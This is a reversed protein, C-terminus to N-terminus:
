HVCLCWSKTASGTSAQSKVRDHEKRDSELQSKDEELRTNKQRESDLDRQLSEAAM